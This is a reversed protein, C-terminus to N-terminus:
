VGMLLMTKEYSTKYDDFLFHNEAMDKSALEGRAQVHLDVLDYVSVKPPEAYKKVMESVGKTNHATNSTADEDILIYEMTELDFICIITATAKSTLRFANELTDPHWTLSRSAKTVSMFGAKVNKDSLGNVSTNFDRVDFVIYKFGLAKADEVHIDIYEACKGPKHRVDGSHISKGLSQSSYTITRNQISTSNSIFTASLDLDTGGSGGDWRCYCRIFDTKEQIDIPTRQGRIVVQLSESLDGMKTPLPIKKLETDIYCKGLNDLTMFKTKLAELLTEHVANVLDEKLPKLTPLTVRNRAGKIFVSRPVNGLRDEFHDWVEYIVKNSSGVAVKNLTKLIFDRQPKTTYTRLLYDLRRLFEGPREALRVVGSKFEKSLELKWKSHWTRIKEFGNPKGKRKQNRLWNFAKYTKPFTVQHDQTRLVEALRIFRGYKSGQKMDRVDLNSMEFLEMIRERQASSLKFKFKEREEVRKDYLPGPRKPLKPVAPLTIDGGSFYVAQRLVDVVTLKLGQLVEANPALALLICLNEKFPIKAPFKPTENKLFFKVIQQDRKTLQGGVSLLDTFIKHYAEETTADIMRFNVVKTEDFFDKDEQSKLDEIIFTKHTYYHLIQTWFRESKSMSMMDKPSTEMYLFMIGM